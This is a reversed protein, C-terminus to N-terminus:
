LTEHLSQLLEKLESNSLGKGAKDLDFLDTILEGYQIYENAMESLSSGGNTHFFQYDEQSLGLRNYLLHRFSGGELFHENLHKLVWAIQENNPKMFSQEKM